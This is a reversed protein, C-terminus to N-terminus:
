PSVLCRYQAESRDSNEMSVAKPLSIFAQAQFLADSSFVLLINSMSKKKLYKTKRGKGLFYNEFDGESYKNKFSTNGVCKNKLVSRYISNISYM